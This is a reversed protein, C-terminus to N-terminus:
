QGGAGSKLLSPCVLDSRIRITVGDTHHTGAEDGAQDPKRARRAGKGDNDTLPTTDQDQSDREM